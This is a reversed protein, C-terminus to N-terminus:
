QISHLSHTKILRAYSSANLKFMWHKPYYCCLTLGSFGAVRGGKQKMRYAKQLHYIKLESKRKVQDYLHKGFYLRHPAKDQLLILFPNDLTTLFRFFPELWSQLFPPNTINVTRPTLRRPWVTWFNERSHRLSIGVKKWAKEVEGNFFCPDWVDVENTKLHPLLLGEKDIQSIIDPLTEWSVDRTKPWQVQTPPIKALLKLKANWGKEQTYYIARYIKQYRKIEQKRTRRHHRTSKRRGM